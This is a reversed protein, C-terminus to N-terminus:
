AKRGILEAAIQVAGGIVEGCAQLGGAAGYEAAEVPDALNFRRGGSGRLHGASEFTGTV